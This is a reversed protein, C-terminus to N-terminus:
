YTRLCKRSRYLTVYALHKLLTWLASGTGNREIYKFIPDKTTCTCAEPLASISIFHSSDSNPRKLHSHNHVPRPCCDDAPKHATFAEFAERTLSEKYCALDQQCLLWASFYVHHNNSSMRKLHELAPSNSTVNPSIPLCYFGWKSWYFIKKWTLGESWVKQM